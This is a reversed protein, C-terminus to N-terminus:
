PKHLKGKQLMKYINVKEYKSRILNNFIFWQQGWSRWNVKKFPDHRDKKFIIQLREVCCYLKQMLNHIILAEMKNMAAPIWVAVPSEDCLLVLAGAMVEVHYKPSVWKENSFWHCMKILSRQSQLRWGFWWSAKFITGGLYSLKLRFLSYTFSFHSEVQSLLM